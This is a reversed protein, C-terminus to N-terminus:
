SQNHNKNNTIINNYQLQWCNNLTRILLYQLLAGCYFIMSYDVLKVKIQVAMVNCLRLKYLIIDIYKLKLDM